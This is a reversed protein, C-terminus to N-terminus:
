IMFKLVAKIIEETSMGQTDIQRLISMVESSNYGLVGLATVAEDYNSSINFNSSINSVPVDISSDSQKMIKDKLELIIRQATKKGIGPCSTFVTENGNIIASTIISPSNYSLISMAAKPGIGSVSVLLKYFQKEKLTSFGYLDFHDEGIAECVYLKVKDGLKLLSATNLSITLEYGVGNCDIVATDPMLETLIGNIHYLM